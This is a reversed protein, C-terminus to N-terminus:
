KTAEEIMEKLEEAEQQSLKNDQLFAALFAPLSNDFAKELLAESEYKQVQERKVLATVTANENKLFGRESLKRIMTYTTSKKWGLKRLCVKTLETSNIPELEWIIDLFKYEADFLKFEGM